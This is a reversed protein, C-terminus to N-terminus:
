VEIFMLFKNSNYCDLKFYFLDLIFFYKKVQLFTAYCSQDQTM